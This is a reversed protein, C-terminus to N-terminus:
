PLSVVISTGEQGIYEDPLSEKSSFFAIYPQRFKLSSLKKVGLSKELARLGDVKGCHASDKVVVLLQSDPTIQDSDFTFDHLSKSCLDINKALSWVSGKSKRELISVGRNLSLQDKGFIGSRAGPGSVSLVYETQNIQQAQTKSESIANLMEQIKNSNLPTIKGPTLVVSDVISGRDVVHGCFSDSGVYQNEPFWSCRDIWVYSGHNSILDIYQEGKDKEVWSINSFGRNDLEILVPFSYSRGEISLKKVSSDVYITQAGNAHFWAVAQFGSINDALDEDSFEVGYLSPEENVNRGLGISFDNGPFVQALVTPGIDFTSAPEDINGSPIDKGVMWFLLQRESSFKELNEYLDNPMALHDSSIILVTDSYLESAMFWSIFDSLLYDSCRIASGMSSLKMLEDNSRCVPSVFGPSHTDLTLANLFFPKGESYLTSARQKVVDLLFDDYYGWENRETSGDDYMEHLTAKDHVRTFGHTLLFNGKGAFEKSAGGIFELSFGYNSLLDGLCVAGPMFEPLGSLSNANKAGLTVLPVGCQSGVIGGITWGTGWPQSISNYRRAFKAKESLKPLLDGFLDNRFYTRELSEAYIWIINKMGSNSAKDAKSALHSPSETQLLQGVRSKNFESIQSELNNKQLLVTRLLPFQAKVSTVMPNFVLAFAFIAGLSAHIYPAGSRRSINKSKRSIYLAWFICSAIVLLVSFILQAFSLIGAGKLGVALHYVVSEDFGSGSLADVFFYLALFIFNVSALIAIPRYVKYGRWISGVFVILAVIFVLYFMM